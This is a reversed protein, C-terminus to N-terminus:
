VQRVRLAFWVYWECGFGHGWVSWCSEREWRSKEHNRTFEIISLSTNWRAITCRTVKVKDRTATRTSFCLSLPFDLSLARACSVPLTTLTFSLYLCRSLALQSCVLSFLFPALSFLRSLAITCWSNTGTSSFLVCLVHLCLYLLLLPITVARFASVHIWILTLSM